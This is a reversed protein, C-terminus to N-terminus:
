NFKVRKIRWKQCDNDGYRSWGTGYKSGKACIRHLQKVCYEAPVWQAPECTGHIAIHVGAYTQGEGAYQSPVVIDQKQCFESIANNIYPNKEACKLAHKYDSALATAAFVTLIARIKM